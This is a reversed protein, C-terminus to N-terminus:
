DVKSSGYKADLPWFSICKGNKIPSQYFYSQAYPNAPAKYRWCEEKKDCGDGLCMTIDAM